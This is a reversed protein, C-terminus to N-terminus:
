KDKIQILKAHIAVRKKGTNDCTSLTLIKDTAEVNVDLQHASRNKITDLFSQYTEMSYFKTQLYNTTPEIKYVSFIQWISNSNKTSIKIYHQKPNNLWSKNLFTPLSGFMYYDILNHGYIITNNNFTDFDNRYDSFIWGISTKKNYFDHELYYTNDQHQVIPYNIKTDDIKIWGVTEENKNIYYDLNINIFSPTYTSFNNTNNSNNNTDIISGNTDTYENTSNIEETILTSQETLSNIFKKNRETQVYWRTLIFICILYTALSLTIISLSFIKKPSHEKKIINKIKEIIALPFTILLSKIGIFFYKIFVYPSQIIFIIGTKFYRILNM